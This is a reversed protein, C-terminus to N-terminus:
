AFIIMRKWYNFVRNQVTSVTNQVLLSTICVVTTCKCYHACIISCSLRYSSWYSSCYFICGHLAIVASAGMNRHQKTEYIHLCLDYISRFMMFGPATEFGLKSISSFYKQLNVENSPSRLLLSINNVSTMAYM